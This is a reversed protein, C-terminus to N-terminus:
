NNREMVIISTFYVTSFITIQILSKFCIISNLRVQTPILIAFYQLFQTVLTVISHLFSSLTQFWCHIQLSKYQLRLQSLASFSISSHVSSDKSQAELIFNKRLITVWSKCYKAIIISVLTHKFQINYLRNKLLKIKLLKLGNNERNYLKYVTSTSM